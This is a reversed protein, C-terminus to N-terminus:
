YQIIGSSIIYRIGNIIFWIYFNIVFVCIYTYCRLASYFSILRTVNFLTDVYPDIGGISSVKNNFIITFIIMTFITLIFGRNMMRNVWLMLPDLYDGNPVLYYVIFCTTLITLIISEDRIFMIFGLVFGQIYNIDDIGRKYNLFISSFCLIVMIIKFPKIFLAHVFDIFEDKESYVHQFFLICIGFIIIEIIADFIFKKATKYTDM